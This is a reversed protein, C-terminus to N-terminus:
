GDLTLVPLGFLIPITSGALVYFVNSDPNMMDTSAWFSRLRPDPESHCIPVIWAETWAASAKDALDANAEERNRLKSAV